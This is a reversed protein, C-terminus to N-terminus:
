CRAAEIADLMGQAWREYTYGAVAAAGAAGLRQRLARDRQLRALAGALAEADAAPVILGCRENLVLGGAAAGVADTAIVPLERGFAENVVLGWPERFTATAISPVVVVDSGAYLDRLAAASQLGIAECGPVAAARDREPGDGALVLRASAPDARLGRWANLLPAIGKERALRGAFLVQFPARRDARARADGWFTNDVAQPAEFVRKAGRARVYASVHPGYTAVADANTYVHRLLPYGALGAASRPQAWLSAWLVFPRRARRAAIYTAPLAIRGGTGCLVASFSGSGALRAAGRQSTVTVDFPLSATDVPAAAHHVRGGYLAFHVSTRAALAAFAGVRAPPVMNTVFLIPKGAHSRSM